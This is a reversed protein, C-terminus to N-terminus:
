AENKLWKKRPLPDSGFIDQLKQEADEDKVVTEVLPNVILYEKYLDPSMSGLGKLYKVKEGANMKYNSYEGLNYITKFGNEKM